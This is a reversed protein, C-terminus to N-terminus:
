RASRRFDKDSPQYEVMLPRTRHDDEIVLCRVYANKLKGAPLYQRKVWVHMSYVSRGSTFEMPLEHRQFPRYTEDNVLLAVEAAISSKPTEGKLAAVQGALEEMFDDPPDTDADFSVLIQAANDISGTAYLDPNAQVIWGLVRKGEKHLRKEQLTSDIIAWVVLGAIILVFAGIVGLVIWVWLM